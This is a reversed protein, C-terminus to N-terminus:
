IIKKIKKQNWKAEDIDQPLILPMGMERDLKITKDVMKNVFDM